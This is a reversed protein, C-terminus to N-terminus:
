YQCHQVTKHSDSTKAIDPASQTQVNLESLEEAIIKAIEEKIMQRILNRLSNNSQSTQMKAEKQWGNYTIGDYYLVNKSPFNFEPTTPQKRHPTQFGCMQRFEVPMGDITTKKSCGYVFPDNTLGYQYNLIKSADVFSGDDNKLEAFRISDVRLFKGWDIYAKIDRASDIYGSILNCNLRVQINHKHCRAIVNMINRENLDIGTIEKNKWLYYHHISINIGAIGKIQFIFFPTLRSGNTTIYLNKTPACKQILIPLDKYLTPEGGLLIINKAENQNIIIALTNVDVHKQPKFGDKEICWSCKGNCQSTLMVELWDRYNGVCWNNCNPITM